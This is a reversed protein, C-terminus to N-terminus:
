ECVFAGRECAIFDGEIDVELKARHQGAPCAYITKLEPGLVTLEGDIWLRGGEAGTYGTMTLEQEGRWTGYDLLPGCQEDVDDCSCLLLALGISAFAKM